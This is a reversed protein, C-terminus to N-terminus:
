KKGKSIQKDYCKKCYAKNDRWVEQGFKVLGKCNSCSVWASSM